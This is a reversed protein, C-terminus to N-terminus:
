YHQRQGALEVSYAARAWVEGAAAPTGTAAEESPGGAIM